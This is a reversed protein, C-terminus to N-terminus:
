QRNAIISDLQYLEDDTKLQIWLPFHDSLEYTLKDDEVGTGEFLKKLLGHVYVMTVTKVRGFEKLRELFAVVNLNKSRVTLLSYEQESLLKRSTSQHSYAFDIEQNMVRELFHGIGSYIEQEKSFCYELTPVAKSVSTDEMKLFNM